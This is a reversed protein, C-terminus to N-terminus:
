RSGRMRVRVRVEDNMSLKSKLPDPESDRPGGIVLVRM